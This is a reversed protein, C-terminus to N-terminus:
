SNCLELFLRFYIYIFDLIQQFFKFRDALKGSVDSWYKTILM